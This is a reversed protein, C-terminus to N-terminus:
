AAAGFPEDARGGHAGADPIRVALLAVDDVPRRPLLRALLAECLDEPGRQEPHGALETVAGVLAEVGGDLPGGRREVLGDTFLLVTTGPELLVHAQGRASGPDVGLPRDPPTVLATARGDAGVAVPPPHGANSWCLQWAAARGPLEVRDLRAVIASALAGVDLKRMAIDLASLLAAPGAGTTVAIARLLSWVRGMAAAAIRDHGAVDGIVLTPSSHEVFADIWDGGAAATPVAPLYRVAVELGDLQLQADPNVANVDEPPLRSALPCGAPATM